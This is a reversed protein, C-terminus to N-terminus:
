FGLWSRGCRAVAAGIAAIILSAGTGMVFTAYGQAAWIRRALAYKLPDVNVDSADPVYGMHNWAEWKAAVKFALWLGIAPVASERGLYLAVFFIIRELRGIWKGGEDRRDILEKWARQAPATPDDSIPPVTIEKKRLWEIFPKVCGGLAMTLLFGIVAFVHDVMAQGRLESWGIKCSTQAAAAGRRM